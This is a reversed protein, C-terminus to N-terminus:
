GGAATTPTSSGEVSDNRCIRVYKRTTKLTLGQRSDRTSPTLGCRCPFQVRRARRFSHTHTFTTHALPNHTTSDTTATTIPSLTGPHAANTAFCRCRAVTRFNPRTRMALCNSRHRPVLTNSHHHIDLLGFQARFAHVTFPACQTTILEPSCASHDVRILVCGPITKEAWHDNPLLSSWPTPRNEALSPM